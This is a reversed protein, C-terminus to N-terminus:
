IGTRGTRNSRRGTNKEKAATFLKKTVNEGTPSNNKETGM